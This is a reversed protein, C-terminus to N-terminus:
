NSCAGACGAAEHRGIARASIAIRFGQTGVANIQRRTREARERAPIGQERLGFAINAEVTLWPFLAYEQFVVGRDPGPGLIPADDLKLVGGTKSEFGAIINLFSTKGCGSPGLIMVFEGDAVELDINAIAVVERRRRKDFYSKQLSRCVIRPREDSPGNRNDIKLDASM